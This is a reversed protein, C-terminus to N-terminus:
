GGMDQSIERRLLSLDDSWIFKRCVIEVDADNQYPFTPDRSLLHELARGLKYAQSRHSSLTILIQAVWLVVDRIENDHHRLVSHPALPAASIHLAVVHIFSSLSWTMHLNRTILLSLIALTILKEELTVRPDQCLMVCSVCSEDQQNQSPPPLPPPSQPIISPSPSSSLSPPTASPSPSSSLSSPSSTELSDSDFDSDVGSENGESEGRREEIAVATSIVKVIQLSLYRKIVLERFGRPLTALQQCLADGFPLSPYVLNALDGSRQIQSRLTGLVVFNDLATTIYDFLDNNAAHNRLWKMQTIGQIHKLCTEYDLVMADVSMLAVVCLGVMNANEATLEIGSLKKALMGVARTYLKAVMETRAESAPMSMQRIVMTATLTGLYFGPDQLTLPLIRDLIWQDKDSRMQDKRRVTVPSVAQIFYEWIEKYEQNNDEIPFIKLTIQSSPNPTSSNLPGLCRCHGHGHHQCQEMM